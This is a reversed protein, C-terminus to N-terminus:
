IKEELWKLIKEAMGVLKSAEKKIDKIFIVDPYRTYMYAPSLEKCGQVFEESLSLERALSVLDHTRRLSKSKKLCLAKLGKEVAQQSLFVAVKYKKGELNFKAADFDELSQKWWRKVEEM